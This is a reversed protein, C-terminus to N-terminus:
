IIALQVLRLNEPVTNNERAAQEKISVPDGQKVGLYVEAPDLNEWSGSNWHDCEANTCFQVGRVADAKLLIIFTGM